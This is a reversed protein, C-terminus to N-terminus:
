KSHKRVQRVFWALKTRECKVIGVSAVNFIGLFYVGLNHFSIARIPVHSESTGVNQPIDGHSVRIRSLGLSCKSNESLKFFLKLALGKRYKILCSGKDSFCLSLM